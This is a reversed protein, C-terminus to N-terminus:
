SEAGRASTVLESRGIGLTDRGGLHQLDAGARAALRVVVRALRLFARAIMSPETARRAERDEVAVRM